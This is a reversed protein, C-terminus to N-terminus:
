ISDNRYELIRSTNLNNLQIHLVVQTRISTWDPTMSMRYVRLGNPDDKNPRVNARILIQNQTSNVEQCCQTTAFWM